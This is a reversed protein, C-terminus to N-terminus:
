KARRVIREPDVLWIDGQTSPRKESIAIGEIQIQARAAFTGAAFELSSALFWKLSSLARCPTTTRRTCHRTAGAFALLRGAGCRATRRWAKYLAIIHEPWVSDADAFILM